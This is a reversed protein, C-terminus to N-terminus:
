LLLAPDQELIVADKLNTPLNFLGLKGQINVNKIKIPNKFVWAWTNPIYDIHSLKKMNKKFPVIDVLDVVCITSGLVLNKFRSSIPKQSSCILIKGRYNTRWSRIEYPKKRSLILDCYPQKISLCKM